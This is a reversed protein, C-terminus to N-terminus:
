GRGVTGTPLVADEAVEILRGSPLLNDPIVAGSSALKYRECRDYTGECYFSRWM